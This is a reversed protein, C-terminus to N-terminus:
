KKQQGEQKSQTLDESMIENFPHLHAEVIADLLGYIYVFGVWWGYKNRLKLYTAKEAADNGDYNKYKIAYDTYLFGAALVAGILLSGKIPQGNYFQGGGPFMMARKAAQGPTKAEVSDVEQAIIIATFLLLTLSKQIM